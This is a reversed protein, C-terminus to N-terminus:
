NGYSLGVSLSRGVAYERQIRTIGNASQEWRYPADLLNEAKLRVGLRDTVQQRFTVDLVNRPREEIDPVGSGGAAEIRPGFVNYFAGVETAGTSSQWVLNLNVVYPSQGELRRKENTPIFAGQTVVTVESDILSLNGTLTFPDFFGGLFDLRRRVSLEAGVVYGDDANQFSYASSATAIFVQEIPRHLQKYFAGFSLVEGPRPFWEWKADLNTIEAVELGPNGVLQRLSSAESFQFPALERFEPRDLTRSAAARLNMDDRLAYTLSLSPLVDTQSRNTVEGATRTSLSLDYAEVRAGAVARLSSMLPVDIMAYGALRDDDAAYVDGPEVIDQLLVQNPGPNTGVVNDLDALIQDLSAIRKTQYKWRFRRAAFDRDRTRFAGGLKVSVDGDARTGLPLTLDLGGNLDDDTLDSYFYRASEGVDDLLFPDDADASFARNYITERLAPEDRTARAAAVRWEVHSGLLETEHEGSLQGWMLSRSQFRLRESFLEGALDEQNAGTYTRAEDTGNRNYMGQLNIQHEPSLLASVNAVGGWTVERLGRTFVYDVNPRQTEEALDPNFAEARWKREIEGDRNTWKEGYNGAAFFGIEKGGLELRDGVSGGLDLNVPATGSTPAFQPLSRAFADGLQKLTAPDRPLRDGRLGYGAEQVEDPVDRAGRDIALFDGNSGAYDLFGNQFQSESNASTGMSLRWTFRDPFQRNRIEVTGGSFDGPRDPTYTKQTTLSELFGSPFLDLPVVEKEPEPSPLPTGNLSTQSYREGLGRIFVYKGETVTVGSVRGAVEAADSDPSKSIEQSGVAEVMAMSMRQEDLLRSTAGAELNATVALAELEIATAELSIDLPTTEGSSVAVDTVIKPAYGLLRAHVSQSGIPVGDLHFRGNLDSLTSIPTGDVSVQATSIPAGSTADVVKGVIRGSAEQAVALPAGISTISTILFLGAIAPLSSIKM